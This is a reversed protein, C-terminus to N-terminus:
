ENLAESVETCGSRDCVEIELKVSILTLELLRLVDAVSEAEVERQDIMGILRDENTARITRLGKVAVWRAIVASDVGHGITWGRYERKGM